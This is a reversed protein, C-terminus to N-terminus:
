IDKAIALTRIANLICLVAVGVDAFVAWWMGVIGLAGLLLFLLKVGIAFIINEMLIRMTKRAIGMATAIKVPDDNMLVVDAAEIAADSGMGGMAIGVDARTLVPADNIGDGVFALSTGPEKENFMKEFIEVKDQPLLKAHFEDIGVENAVSKATSENDGTLMVTKKIGLSHLKGIAEKTGDKIEDAIVIYGAFENDISIYIITGAKSCKVYDINNNEMLRANGACVIHGNVSASVGHGAIEKVDTVDQQNIQNDFAKIVSLAVPHKSFSEAHACYRLIDEKSYGNATYVDVVAFTGKTLTGTKDFVITKLKSLTEICTSGKILIGCKSAAGIGGFFSLPVSIVLACPCSIVLFTLSRRFWKVFDGTVITGAVTLLVAGVVIAPTYYKAFRTIFNEVKAKRESANEVMELIRAVTSQGFEKTVKVKLVGENNVCGSYIEQSVKVHRPVSEGTIAKTDIMSEGEVVIGDLPIREGPLIVIIDDIHVDEPDIQVVKGDQEINAYDPRINMLDSISKRSRTVAISQFLEGVQYFLMVAVGETYEGLVFAGITAIGMLFNEDFVQGALINKGAKKLVSFGVPIYAIIFLVLQFIWGYDSETFLRDKLIVAVVLLVVSIIINRLARKHKKTM